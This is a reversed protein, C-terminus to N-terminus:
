NTMGFAAWLLLYIFLALAALLFGSVFFSCESPQEKNDLTKPKVGKRL